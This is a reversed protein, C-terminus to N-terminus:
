VLRHVLISEFHFGEADDPATKELLFHGERREFALTAIQNDFWPEHHTLQWAVPPPAVGAARSLRKGVSEAWRSWAIRFVTRERVELANRMPSCVAQYVASQVASNKFAARALYAHHVDGSLVVISAPARGREGAAVSRLLGVLRHFSTEFAPWHELDVARRLKESLKAATKGWAGACLAENWAELHHIGPAMLLPLSTAILLHECPESVQSALWQWEQEDLMSRKAGELMRGARADAVVLRVGGFSRCYSWRTGQVERDSRFAFTRLLPGADAEARVRGFLGDTELEAPALNGLHQYVWYSMFGGVIRADWWPQARMEAVWSASINWDDHMDHDDFIMLTSVTSFLWRLVPDSWADWYLHTYEEFDAVQEGPPTQPDRRSRIFKRTEPSVEDAYIQDGLLLLVQPWTDPAERCLRFALAYLADIGRGRGDADKALTYPPTHPLTVRCSGFVLKFPGAPDITRVASAPFPSDPEPWVKRGDLRVAYPYTRGPELGSVCVVAYHHGEVHFTRTAHGLVEVTCPGDTEVWLTADSEGVYRLLPGLLLKM